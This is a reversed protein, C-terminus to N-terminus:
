ICHACLEGNNKGKLTKHKLVDDDGLTKGCRWFTDIRAEALKKTGIEVLFEQLGQHNEFNASVVRKMHSTPQWKEGPKVTDGIHKVPDKTTMINMAAVSDGSSIAKQYQYFQESCTFVRQDITFDADYFNSLPSLSGHFVLSSKDKESHINQIAFPIEEKNDMSYISGDILLKDQRLSAKLEIQRAHNLM